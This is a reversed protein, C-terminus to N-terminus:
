LEAGRVSSSLLSAASMLPRSWLHVIVLTAIVGGM